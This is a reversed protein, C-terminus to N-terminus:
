DRTSAAVKKEKEPSRAVLDRASAGEAILVVEPHAGRRPGVNEVAHWTAEAGLGAFLVVEFRPNLPNEGAAILATGPHAYTEGRLTFSAPGFAV